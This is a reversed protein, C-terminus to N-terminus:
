PSGNRTRLRWASRHPLAGILPAITTPTQSRRRPGLDDLQVFGFEVADAGRDWLAVAGITRQRSEDVVDVVEDGAVPIM